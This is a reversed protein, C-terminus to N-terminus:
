AYNLRFIDNFVWYSGGEPVLQFTQSFMQPNQEEDVQVCLACNTFLNM